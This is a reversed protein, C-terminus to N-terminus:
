DFGLFANAKKDRVQKELLAKEEQITMRRESQAGPQHQHM